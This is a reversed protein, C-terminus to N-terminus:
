RSDQLDVGIYNTYDIVATPKEVHERGGHAGRTRQEYEPDHITSLCQTPQQRVLVARGHLALTRVAALTKEDKKDTNVERAARALVASVPPGFITM